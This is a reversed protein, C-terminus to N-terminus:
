ILKVNCLLFINISQNIILKDDDWCYIEWNKYIFIHTHTSYQQLISCFNERERKERGKKETFRQIWKRHIHVCNM